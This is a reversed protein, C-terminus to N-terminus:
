WTGQKRGWWWILGVTATSQQRALAGQVDTLFSPQNSYDRRWEYRMLTGDAVRYDFTITNEKLAQTIGSFLGGRDSMYESRAALAFKPTLQYAIYAAGGDVHAPASSEGPAQNRWLRQIVYDGEVQLTLKPTAQWTAYGDLIHTRGDPAPRIATFCLGPQVPVPGCNTAPTRDPHDQGLYYNMTWTLNKRPKATFGLLEDKFGNTAEVQNTGNIVWYNLTLRDNVPFSARVGMHYFPLYDFWFSRSYNMQDKTYNGEVGLASGWKGFDVTLGKGIPVIYTGYAQFINRYIDPRPENSPNGQSSDTAQGFQLDLRGGWRRGAALDAPREFIVSAQNLSFENSLVDYARLLNVRGVPHNFNYEYYTDLSLDITTDRLFDLNKRDEATVVQQLVTQNQPSTQGRATEAVTAPASNGAPAEISSQMQKVLTRLESVEAELQTVREQLNQGSGSALHSPSPPPEVSQAM